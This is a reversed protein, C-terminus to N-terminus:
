QAEELPHEARAARGHRSSRDILRGIAHWLSEDPSRLTRLFEAGVRYTSGRGPLAVCRTVRLDEIHWGGNLAVRLTGTRGPELPHHSELLCGGKSIDLVLVPVAGVLRVLPVGARSM